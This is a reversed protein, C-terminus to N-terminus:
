KGYWLETAIQKSAANAAQQLVKKELDSSMKQKRGEVWFTIFDKGNVGISDYYERNNFYIKKAEKIIDDNSLQNKLHLKGINDTLVSGLTIAQKNGSPSYFVAHQDSYKTTIIHTIIYDVLNKCDQSYNTNLINIFDALYLDAIHFNYLNSKTDINLTSFGVTNRNIPYYIDYSYDVGITHKINKSPQTKVIGAIRKSELDTQKSIEKLSEDIIYEGAIEWAYGVLKEEDGPLTLPPNYSNIEDWIYKPVKMKNNNVTVNIRRRQNGSVSANVVINQHAYNLYKTFFADRNDEKLIEQIDKPINNNGYVRKIDNKIINILNNEYRIWKSALETLKYAM